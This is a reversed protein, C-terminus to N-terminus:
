FFLGIKKVLIEDMNTLSVNNIHLLIQLCSLLSLYVKKYSRLLVKYLREFFTKSEM